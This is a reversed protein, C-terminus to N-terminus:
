RDGSLAMESLSVLIPSPNSGFHKRVTDDDHSVRDRGSQREDVALMQQAFEKAAPPATVRDSFSRFIGVARPDCRGLFQYLSVADNHMDAMTAPM